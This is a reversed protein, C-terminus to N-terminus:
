LTMLLDTVQLYEECVFCPIDLYESTLTCHPPSANTFLGFVIEAM